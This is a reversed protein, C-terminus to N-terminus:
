GTDTVTNTTEAALKGEYYDVLSGFQQPYKIAIRELHNRWCEDFETNSQLLHFCYDIEDLMNAILSTDLKFYAEDRVIIVLRHVTQVGAQYTAARNAANM